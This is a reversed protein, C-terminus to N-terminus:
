ALDAEDFLKEVKSEFAADDLTGEEYLDVYTDYEARQRVPLDDPDCGEPVPPAPTSALAGLGLEPCAAAIARVADLAGARAHGQM